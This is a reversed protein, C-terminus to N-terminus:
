TGLFVFKVVFLVALVAVAPRLQSIRRGRDLDPDATRSVAGRDMGAEGLIQPNVVALYAMTMYTTVGAAIERRATTRYRHLHFLRNLM